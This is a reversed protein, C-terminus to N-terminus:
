RRPVSTPGAVEAGLAIVRQRLARDATVVTVVRGAGETRVVEVITDDGMSGDTSSANPINALLECGALLLLLAAGKM